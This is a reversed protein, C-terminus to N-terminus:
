TSGSRLCVATQIADWANPKQTASRMCCAMHKQDHPLSAHIYIHVFDNVRGHDWECRRRHRCALVANSIFLFIKCVKNFFFLWYFSPINREKWPSVCFISCMSWCVTFPNQVQLFLAKRSHLGILATSIWHLTAPFPKCQWSTVWESHANDAWPM